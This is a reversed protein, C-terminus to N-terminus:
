ERWYKNRQKASAPRKWPEHGPVIPPSEADPACTSNTSSAAPSPNIQSASSFPSYSSGSGGSSYTNITTAGLKLNSGGDIEFSNGKFKVNGAIMNTDSGLSIGAGQKSKINIGAGATENLAGGADLNVENSAKLHIGGGNASNLISTDSTNNIEKANLFYGNTSCIHFENCATQLISGTSSRVNIDKKVAVSMKGKLAKMNIDNGAEVNFNRDAYLNIDKGSRVSVSEAGFLHMHGDEDLEVWTKGKATSIYIRENTDDIIVQNGEATKLRIRCNDPSDNMLFTHHGPTTFVYAQPDLYQGDVPNKAYGETGDKETRDQAVQRDYWGRTKAQSSDMKNQFATRVNDYAPQLPDYTDTFPGAAGNKNKNRGTPISRNRHMGFYSAFYFRRNSDGNLLFVLVQAGVKPLAWFGYSVPGNSKAKNRGSKFDNTVGGFPTAYEAWPLLDLNFDEGDLAPCWIKIRGNQQPDDTDKVVGDTIFPFAHDIM